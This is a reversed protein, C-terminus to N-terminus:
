SVACIFGAGYCSLLNFLLLYFPLFSCVLSFLFCPVFSSYCSLPCCFLLIFARGEEGRGFFCYFYFCFTRCFLFFFFRFPSPSALPSFSSLSTGPPPNLSFLIPSRLYPLSVFCLNSPLLAFYLLISLSLTSVEEVSQMYSIYSSETQLVEEAVRHRVKLKAM